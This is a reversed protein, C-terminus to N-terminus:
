AVKLLKKIRRFKYLGLQRRKLISYILLTLASLPVSIEGLSTYLTKQDIPRVSGTFYSSDPTSNHAQVVGNNDMVFSDRGRASQLYYRNNAVAQFKSMQMAQVFYLGDLGMDYLSASNVLVQSGRSTIDRYFEPAIAGSCALVGYRIGQTEIPEIPVESQKIAQDSQYSLVKEPNGSAVLLAKYIYPLFEGGPILFTKGRKELKEGKSNLLVVDNLNKGSAQDTDAITTIVQTSSDTAIGEYIARDDTYFSQDQLFNSYEPMFVLSTKTINNKKIYEALWGRYYIEDYQGVHVIGVQQQRQVPPKSYIFYGLAAVIAVLGILLVAYKKLKGFILQYVCLNILVVVFSMGFLGLLRSVFILPTESAALGLAGFNWHPGIVGGEGTTVIAFTVSRIFEGVVWAAPVLLFSTPKTFSIKLKEVVWAFFVFGLSFIGVFLGVTLPLFIAKTWPDSLLEMAKIQTFWWMVILFYLMGVLWIRRVFQRRTLKQTGLWNLLYFFPVMCALSLWGLGLRLFPLALAVASAVILGYLRWNINRM